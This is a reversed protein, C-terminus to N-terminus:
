IWDEKIKEYKKHQEISASKNWQNVLENYEKVINILTNRAYLEYLTVATWALFAVGVFILQWKLIILQTYSM